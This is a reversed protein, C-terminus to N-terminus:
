ANVLQADAIESSHRQLIIVDKNSIKNRVVNIEPEIFKKRGLWNPKFYFLYEYENGNPDHTPIAPLDPRTNYQRFLQFVNIGFEIDSLLRCEVPTLEEDSEGMPIMLTVNILRSNRREEPSVRKEGKSIQYKPYDLKPVQQLLFITKLIFMPLVFPTLVFIFDKPEIYPNGIFNLAAVFAVTGILVLIMAFLIDPLIDVGKEAWKVQKYFAWIHLLGISLAYIAIITYKWVLSMNPILTLLVPLTLLGVFLLLYIISNLSFIRVKKAQSRIKSKLRNAILQTFVLSLMAFIFGVSLM